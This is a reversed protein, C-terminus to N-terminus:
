RSPLVPLFAMDSEVVLQLSVLKKLLCRKLPVSFPVPSGSTILLLQSVLTHKAFLCRCDLGKRDEARRSM